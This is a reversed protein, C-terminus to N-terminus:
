ADDDDGEDEIANIWDNVVDDVWDPKDAAVTEGVSAEALEGDSQIVEFPEDGTDEYDLALVDVPFHAGASQLVGGSVDVIVVPRDNGIWLRAPVIGAELLGAMEEPTPAADREVEYRAIITHKTM